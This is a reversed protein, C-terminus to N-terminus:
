LNFFIGSLVILIVWSTLVRALLGLSCLEIGQLSQFSLIVKKLHRWFVGHCACSVGMFLNLHIFTIILSGFFFFSFFFAFESSLLFVSSCVIGFLNEAWFCSGLFTNEWTWGFACLITASPPWLVDWSMLVTFIDSVNWSANLTNQMILCVHSKLSWLYSPKIQVHHIYTDLQCPTSKQHKIRVTLKVLNHDGLLFAEPQTWSPM